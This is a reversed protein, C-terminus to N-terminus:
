SKVRTLSANMLMYYKYRGSSAELLLGATVLIRLYRRTAPLEKGLCKAIKESSWAKNAPMEARLKKLVLVWGPTKKKKKTM